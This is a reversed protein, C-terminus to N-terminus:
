GAAAQHQGLDVKDKESWRVTVREMSVPTAVSFRGGHDAMLDCLKRLVSVYNHGKRFEFIVEDHVFLVPHADLGTEQLYRFCKALGAKVHEAEANQVVYNVIKQPDWRDVSLRRGWAGPVSGKRRVEDILQQSHEVVEPFAVDYDTLIQHAVQADVGTWSMIAHAGGQFIKVFNMVKALKRWYKVGVHNELDVIDGSFRNVLENAFGRDGARAHKAIELVRLACPLMSPNGVGGWIHNAAWTHIDKGERIADLMSKVNLMDAFLIIQLQDYDPCYWVYGDRPIFVQRVDVVYEAMKSNTTTPDSVNQLNPSSCSSRNTKAAGCQHYGPHIIVRNETERVALRDYADFFTSGAKDNARYRLLQEVFDYSHRLPMLVEADVSPQGTKTRKTVAVSLTDYLVKSVQKPSNPNFENGAVKRMKELAADRDARCIAATESMREEDIRVGRRQMALFAPLREMEDLYSGLVRLDSHAADLDGMIENYLEFLELTRIADRLAYTRLTGPKFLLAADVGRRWLEAIMWYDAEVADALNWGQKKAAVRARVALKHLDKEDDSSIGLLRDALPKLKYKPRLNDVSRAQFSADEVPGLTKIGLTELMLIDFQANFFVKRISPDEMITRIEEVDSISPNPSRTFPDVRWEWYRTTGDDFCMSVAYPAAGIWTVLGTTETDVAVYRGLERAETRPTAPM